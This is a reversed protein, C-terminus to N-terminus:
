NSDSPFLPDVELIGVPLEEGINHFSPCSITGKKQPGLAPEGPRDEYVMGQVEALM